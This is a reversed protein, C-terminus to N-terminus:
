QTIKDFESYDMDIIFIFAYGQKICEDRKIINIKENYEYTYKSKIECILNASEIFFDSHYVKSKGEMTFRISPGNKIVLSKDECYKIFNLENKGRYYLGNYICMKYGSIQSKKFLNINQNPHEVGFKSVM